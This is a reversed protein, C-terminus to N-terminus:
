YNYNKQNYLTVLRGDDSRDNYTGFLDDFSNQQLHIKWKNERVDIVEWIGCNEISAINIIFPQNIWLSPWCGHNGNMDALSTWQNKISDYCSYKHGSGHEGGAVYVQQKNFQDHCIALPYYVTNIPIFYHKDVKERM